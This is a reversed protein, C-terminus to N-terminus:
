NIEKILKDVDEKNNYYHIATRLFGRRSSVLIDKKKLEEVWTDSDKKKPHFTIIGSHCHTPVKECSARPTVFQFNHKFLESELYETTELIRESINDVGIRLIIKMATRLGLLTLFPATGTEVAPTSTKMPPTVIDFAKEMDEVSTWGLFPWKTNDRFEESVYFLTCGYGAGPWKHATATLGSIHASQVDIPFVGLSQTCNVFFPINLKKLEVGITVIDSRMGTAFQVHSIVVGATKKDVLALIKNPDIYHSGDTKLHKIHFGHHEWPIRSAPFEDEPMVITNKSPDKKQNLLFALINMGHATNPVNAIDQTSPANIIQSALVRLEEIDLVLQQFNPEGHFHLHDLFDSCAKHVEAHLPTTASNLLYSYKKAVAFHQREKNWDITNSM